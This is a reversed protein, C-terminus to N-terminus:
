NPLNFVACVTVYRDRVNYLSHVKLPCFHLNTIALERACRACLVIGWWKIPKWYNIYLYYDCVHTNLIWVCVCIYVWVYNYVWIYVYIFGYM